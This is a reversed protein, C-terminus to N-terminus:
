KILDTINIGLVNVIKELTNISPNAIKGNEIMEITKRNLKAEKALKLKSYGKEERYKKLNEQIM